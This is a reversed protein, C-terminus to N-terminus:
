SGISFLYKYSKMDLLMKKSYNRKIERKVKILNQEIIHILKKGIRVAIAM